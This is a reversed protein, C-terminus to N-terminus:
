KDEKEAARHISDGEKRLCCVCSDPNINSAVFWHKDEKDLAILHRVAPELRGADYVTPSSQIRRMERQAEKADEPSRRAKTALKQMVISREKTRDLHALWHKCIQIAEATTMKSM